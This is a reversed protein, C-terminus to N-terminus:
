LVAMVLPLPRFSSRPEHISARVPRRELLTAATQPDVAAGAAVDVTITGTTESTPSVILSYSSGSGSLTGKTGGSVSIDDATFGTVAESFSFFFTVDGTATGSTTGDSITLTPAFDVSVRDDVILQELGSSSSYVSHDNDSGDSITGQDSWVGNTVILEDGSNGQVM